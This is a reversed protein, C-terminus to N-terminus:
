TTRKELVRLLEEIKEVQEDAKGGRIHEVEIVQIMKAKVDNRM